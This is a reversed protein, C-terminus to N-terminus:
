MAPSCMRSRTRACPCGTRRWGSAGAACTPASRSTSSATSATPTSLLADLIAPPAPRPARAPLLRDFLTQVMGALSRRAPAAACASSRGVRRASPPSAAGRPAAAGPVTLTYYGVPMLAPRGHAAHGVHRTENIAFDYVVPEMAFPVAEGTRAQGRAHDDQLPNRAARREPRLYLGHRRRVHRGADLLGLLRRWIRRPRRRDASPTSTARGPSSRRSRGASTATPRAGLARIDGRRLLDLIEDLPAIAEQRAAWEAEARLLYKETVMELIPGVNQAMGGHVLVLSDQLAPARRADHPRDSCTHAPLLRGRSIGHEPRRTAAEVGEILKIGPWVGGSDQWGGGSGGLWEGLIARAAVIRREEEDAPRHAVAIQGTARM